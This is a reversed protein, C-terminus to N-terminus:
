DGEETFGYLGNIEIEDRRDARSVLTPSGEPKIILGSETLITNFEKKGLLKEMDGVGLLTKKFVDTYGAKNLAEVVKVEDAYKRNSRAQVLKFTTWKKGTLAQEQAYAMVAKAWKQCDELKPLLEDIEEDSLETPSKENSVDVIHLMDVAHARCKAQAKCFTCWEGTCQKDSGNYAENAIPKVWEGWAKLDEVSIDWHDFNERRPQFIHLRVTKIEDPYDLMDLVGLAYLKLQPNNEAVVLLGKGYKLDIINLVDDGIIVCDATGFGGPAYASFDVRVEVYPLVAKLGGLDEIIDSVYDRYDDTMEDMEITELDSQPRKGPRRKFLKRLKFEALEHAATGELAVDSTTEPYGEEMKISAPCNIWRHSSSASLVAHARDSHKIDAKSM